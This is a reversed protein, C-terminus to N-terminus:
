NKLDIINSEFLKSKEISQMVIYRKQIEEFNKMVVERIINIKAQDVHSTTVMLARTAFTDFSRSISSYSKRPIYFREYVPNEALVAELIAEDIKVFEINCKKSINEIVSNPHGSFLVVADLKGACLKDAMQSEHVHLINAYDSSGNLNYYKFLVLLGNKAGAGNLNTGIKKGSLDYFTRIKSDDKAIVKFAEPFLNLVLRLNNFQTQNSFMGYSYIADHVLDSQILAFDASKQELLNLNNLSGSTPMVSCKVDPHYKHVLNCIELATLYYSGFISGSAISISITASAPAAFLLIYKAFLLLLLKKLFINKKILLEKM